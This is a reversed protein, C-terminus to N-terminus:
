RAGTSLWIKRAHFAESFGSEAKSEVGRIRMLARFTEADYWPKDQQSNFLRLLLEVKSSAIESTLPVYVNPNGLDGEYKPIEYELITHNRFANWTVECLTRHDQHVDERRHTFILDPQLSNGLTHVAQKIEPWQSPFMTDHFEFLHLSCNKAGQCWAQFAGKAEQLRPGNCSFVAWDVKLDPNAKLMSLLTGGCGIEIDDPHAGLCLVSRARMLEFHM